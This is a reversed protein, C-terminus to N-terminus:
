KKRKTFESPLGVRLNGLQLNLCKWTELRFIMRLPESAEPVVHKFFAQLILKFYIESDVESWQILIEASFVWFDADNPLIM